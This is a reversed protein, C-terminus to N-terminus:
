CCCYCCACLRAGLATGTSSPGVTASDKQGGWAPESRCSGHSEPAVMRPCVGVATELAALSDWRARHLAELAQGIVRLSQAYSLTKSTVFVRAM